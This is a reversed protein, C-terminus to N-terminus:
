FFEQSIPSQTGWGGLVAALLIRTVYKQRAAM